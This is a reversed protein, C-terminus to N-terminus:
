GYKKHWHIVPRSSCREYVIRARHAVVRRIGGAEATLGLQVCFCGFGADSGAGGPVITQSRKVSGTTRGAGSAETAQDLVVRLSNFGANGGTSGPVITQSREAGGIARGASRAETAQDLGVRLFSFSARGGAGGPVITQSRKAGGTTRGASRAEAARGLELLAPVLIAALATQYSLSIADMAEPPFLRGSRLLNPLNKM